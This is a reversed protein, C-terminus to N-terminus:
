RASASPGTPTGSLDAVARPRGGALGVVLLLYAALEVAATLAALPYPMSPTPTLPLAASLSTRGAAHPPLPVAGIAADLHALAVVVLLVAGAAFSPGRGLTGRIPLPGEEGDRGAPAAALAVAALALAVPALVALIVDGVGDAPGRGNHVARSVDVVRVVAYGVVLAAATLATVVARRHWGGRRWGVLLLVVAALPAWCLRLGQAFASPPGADPSLYVGHPAGPPVTAVADVLLVAFAVPVMWPQRSLVTCALLLGISAVEAYRWVPNATLVGAAHLTGCAAAAALVV